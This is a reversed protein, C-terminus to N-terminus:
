LHTTHMELMLRLLHDTAQIEAEPPIEDVGYYYQRDNISVYLPVIMMFRNIGDPCADYNQMLALHWAGLKIYITPGAGMLTTEYTVPGKRDSLGWTAILKQIFEVSPPETFQAEPTRNSRAVEWSVKEILNGLNQSLQRIDM